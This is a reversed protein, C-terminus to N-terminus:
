DGPKQEEKSSLEYKYPRRKDVLRIIGREVMRPLCAMATKTELVADLEKRTMPGTELHKLIQNETFSDKGSWVRVRPLPPTPKIFWLRIRKAVARLLKRFTFRKRSM